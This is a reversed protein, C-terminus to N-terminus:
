RLAAQSADTVVSMARRLEYPQRRRAVCLEYREHVRDGSAVPARELSGPQDRAFDLVGIQCDIRALLARDFAQETVRDRIPNGRLRFRRSRRQVRSDNLVRIRGFLRLGAGHAHRLRRERAAPQVALGVSASREPAFAFLSGPQIGNVGTPDPDGIDLYSADLFGLGANVRWQVSAAWGFEFEFGDAEALAESPNVPFPRKQGPNNPDDPLIPV